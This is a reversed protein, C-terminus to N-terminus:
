NAVLSLMKIYYEINLSKKKIQGLYRRGEQRSDAACANCLFLSFVVCHIQLSVLYYSTHGVSNTTHVFVYRTGISFM